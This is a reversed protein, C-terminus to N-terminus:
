ACIFYSTKNCLTEDNFYRYKFRYFSNIVYNYNILYKDIYYQTSLYGSHCTQDEYIWYKLKIRM